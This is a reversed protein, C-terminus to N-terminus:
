LCTRAHREAVHTQVLVWVLSVRFYVHGQMDNLLMDQCTKVCRSTDKSAGGHETRANGEVARKCGM